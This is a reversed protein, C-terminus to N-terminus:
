VTYGGAIAKLSARKPLLVCKPAMLERLASSAYWFHLNHWPLLSSFFYPEGVVADILRDGFDARTLELPPKELVRVVGSLSNAELLKKQTYLSILLQLTLTM